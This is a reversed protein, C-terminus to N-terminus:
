VLAPLRRARRNSRAHRSPVRANPGPSVIPGPPAIETNGLRAPRPRGEATYRGLCRPGWWVSHEGSLHRRVCVRLSACSRRGRQKDIQLLVGALRVTNDRAVVREEEHCLIQDLDHPGGPVFASTPDAPPRGFTANYDPIFRERLYQNAAAVTRIEAVRLENVLRGQLTGNARESRGRAQPSFGVIHEIGLTALARGVQTLKSREPATGSTPTYVAWSARDTYLAGPIGHTELVAWLATMVVETGEGAEHDVLQAYLLRKTADDVVVILTAWAEPVLALWRHRSGDLHLLEGFCPRPERRRRHRGRPRRKSVLGAVPLAKKVFSYSVQVGHERQAIQYFHRVNFGPHGDRPGYRDRYLALLRQVEALPVARPSPTRQRHDYLGTFGYQEYRWRLRRVTRAS